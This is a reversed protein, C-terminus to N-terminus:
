STFHLTGIFGVYGSVQLNIVLAQSVLSNGRCLLIYHGVFGTCGPIMIVHLITVDFM